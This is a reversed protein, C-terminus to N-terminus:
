RPPPKLGVTPFNPAGILYQRAFRHQWCARLQTYVPHLAMFHWGWDELPCGSPCTTPGHEKSEVWEVHVDLYGSKRLNGAITICLEDDPM